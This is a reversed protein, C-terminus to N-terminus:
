FLGTLTNQPKTLLDEYRVIYTPVDQPSKTWYEHFEVWIKIEDQIFMDWMDSLEKVREEPIAKNHSQMAMMNFFSWLSDIPSRVM